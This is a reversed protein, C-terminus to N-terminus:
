RARPLESLPVHYLALNGLLYVECSTCQRRSCRRLHAQPDTISWCLYGNGQTRAACKTCSQRASCGASDRCGGSGKWCQEIPGSPMLVEFRAGTSDSRESLVEEIVSGHSALIERVMSLGLGTGNPKSTVFAEFLRGELDASIGPGDDQIVICVAQGAYGPLRQELEDAALLRWCLHINGGISCADIANQILNALMREVQRQDIAVYLDTSGVDVTLTIGHGSALPLHARVASEVVPALPQLAPALPRTRTSDLMRRTTGALAQAENAIADFTLREEPELHLQSKLCQLGALISALPNKLEHGLCAVLKGLEALQEARHRQEEMAIIPTLDRFVVVRHGQGPVLSTCFGFTRRSNDPLTLVGTSQHSSPQDDLFAEGDPLIDVLRKGLVASSPSLHLTSIANPNIMRVVGDLDVVLIGSELSEFVTRILETSNRLEDETEGGKLRAGVFAALLRLSLREDDSWHDLQGSREVGLVGWQLTSSDLPVVAVARDNTIGLSCRLEVPLSMAHCALVNKYALRHHHEWFAEVFLSAEAEPYSSSRHGGGRRAPWDFHAKPRLVNGTDATLELVFVRNLGGERGVFALIQRWNSHPSREEGVSTGEVLAQTVCAALNRPASSDADGSNTTQQHVTEEPIPTVLEAYPVPVAAATHRPESPTPRSRASLDGSVGAHFRMTESMLFM